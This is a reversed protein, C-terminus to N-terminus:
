PSANFGKVVMLTDGNSIVYFDISRSSVAEL